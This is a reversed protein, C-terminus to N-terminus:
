AKRMFRVAQRIRELGDLESVAIFKEWYILWEQEPQPVPCAEREFAAKPVCIAADPEDGWIFLNSGEEQVHSVLGNFYQLNPNTRTFTTNANKIAGM